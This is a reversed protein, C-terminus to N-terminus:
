RAENLVTGVLNAGAQHLDKSLARTVAAKTVHCRALLLAGGARAALTQVDAYSSAAPTDILIVDYERALEKLLATFAPRGILEQPNPALAGAPLVSLDVLASVRQVVNPGGRGSLAASLGMQNNVGFLVHQRPNRLDADIIVTREGLQSFVVALNAVLWSRGEGRGPSTIALSRPGAEPDFWRLMLQSRLARLAEVQPLFPNYAAVVEEAVGSEGRQLYPYDFQRSLAFDIDADSVLQLQRAADGFRMGKDRQLRLIQEADEPKLRGADILIAGISRQGACIGFIPTPANM